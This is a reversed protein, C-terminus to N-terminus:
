EDEKDDEDEADKDSATELWKVRLLDNQIFGSFLEIDSRNKLRLTLRRGNRVKNPMESLSRWRDEDGEFRGRQTVRAYDPRPSIHFRMKGQPPFVIASGRRNMRPRPIQSLLSEFYRKVHENSCISLRKEITLPENAALNRLSGRIRAREALPKAPFLQVASLYEFHNSADRALAIEYCRIDIGKETLWQATRLVEYDYSEAILVIRQFENLQAQGDTGDEDLDHKELFKQLEVLKVSDAKKKVEEWTLDSVMAAYTIAQLLQLKDSGRKLEVIVVKGKSDIALLDIRDGVRDSPIVEQNLVFVDENCESQFFHDPNRYILQQLDAREKMDVESLSLSDLPSLSGAARDIKLM